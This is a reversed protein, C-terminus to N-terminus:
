KKKIVKKLEAVDKRMQKRFEEPTLGSKCAHDVVRKRLQERTSFEECEVEKWVTPSLFYDFINFFIEPM